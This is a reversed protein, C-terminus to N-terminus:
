GNNKFLQYKRMADQKNAKGAPTNFYTKYYDWISHPDSSDPLKEKVRLYFIRAMATAFRLDYVMRDESPMRPADFHHLLQLKIDNRGAIFNVWIDNYTAPEMQYIGLAPGRVQHIYSGGDSECACTFVLLEIADLSFLLLDQLVPKIILDRLQNVNLM